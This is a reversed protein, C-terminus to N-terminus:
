NVVVRETFVKGGQVVQIIVTGKAYASLDFQQQYEGNFANMEERFLQRGNLDLLTVILPQSDAKFEVTVPGSSPNPYVKFDNLNLDRSEAPPQPADSQDGEEAKHITIVHNRKFVEKEEDSWRWTYFQREVRRGADDDSVVEIRSETRCANLTAEATLADGERLYAVAIKEGPQFKAIEDWLEDHNSVEVGNVATIVDGEAMGAERAASEDTFETVRTGNTDDSKSSYVGLCADKSRTDIKMEDFDFDFAGEWDTNVDVKMPKQSREKLTVKKASKSDGRRYSVNVTENARTGSMFDEVDEWDEIETSNIMLIRDGDELGAEEAGSGEVINVAVGPQDSEDHIPSVGMFGRSDPNCEKKNVEARTSLTAKTKMKETGRMYHLAVVDGPKKDRIIRTLDSWSTIEEGDIAIINDNNKLGADFAPSCNVIEVVVGPEDEDEDSDIRVGLFPGSNTLELDDMIEQVGDMAHGVAIEAEEMIDEIGRAYVQRSRPGNRRIKRNYSGDATSETIEISVGERVHEDLYAEADFGLAAEGSKVITEDEVTGDPHVIHKHITIQKEPQPSEQSFVRTTCFSILVMAIALATGITKM